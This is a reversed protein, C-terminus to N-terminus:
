SQQRQRSCRRIRMQGVGNCREPRHPRRARIPGTAACSCSWGCRASGSRQPSHTGANTPMATRGCSAHMAVATSLGTDTAHDNRRQAVPGIRMRQCHDGGRQTQQSLRSQHESEVRPTITPAVLCTRLKLGRLTIPPLANTRSSKQVVPEGSLRGGQRQALGCGGNEDTTVPSSCSRREIRQLHNTNPAAEPQANSDLPRL